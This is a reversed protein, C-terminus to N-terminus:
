ASMCLGVRPECRGSQPEAPLSQLSLLPTKSCLTGQFAFLTDAYVALCVQIEMAYVEVLQTGKNPDDSGDENQCSRRAHVDCHNHGHCIPLVLISVVSYVLCDVGLTTM